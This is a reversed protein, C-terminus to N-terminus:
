PPFALRRVMEEYRPDGRIPDFQPDVKLFPLCQSRVQFAKEILRFADDTQGLHAHIVGIEYPCVSHTKAIETVRDLVQRAEALDGAKAIAGGAMAMVLPSHDVQQATRAAALAEARLGQQAYVIALTAHAMGLGPELEIARRLPVVGEDPQRSIMSTWGANTLIMPSLPDLEMALRSERLGESPRGVAALLWSYWGHGPAYNPNLELAKRFEKEAAAWKWDYITYVFGLSTHAEALSDDLRLAKEAADRAKPMAEMPPLYFDSLNSWADALGAWCRADNPDKALGREFLAIASRLGEEIAMSLHQRGKLYLEHVEPDVPRVAALRAREQPTVAARVERAVAQAVDSQLALVDRLDREYSKAWLHRDTKADILQATIRVRDGSRGVSGELVGDVKLEKAIQSLPKKTGKYSMASTRSIVRLSGIQALNTILEETMGDAFYDQEPDRSLNLLPLVALSQMGAAPGGPRLRERFGGVNAAFLIGLVLVASGIVLALSRRREASRPAPSAGSVSPSSGAESLAFGLDRASQFREGPSKELCRRVIRDLAPPVEARGHSPEPPEEKLIANMTEVASAGRFPRQGALMEYLVAGFSFIDSRHDAPQGRVQEPSMYGVTGMAVGPETGPATPASTEAAGPKEPSALKALGFDLIKVRGDPTVFVNEPKLDRHVIGKEHAAALGQSIQTAYEVAKRAPLAGTALRERLTQGELLESVVYPVGDREGVDHITLINPHNLASAARAEQEFRRLRDPDRSLSGPLIKVAVERGLREDRARYVEGMGGAGLPSLIEYPGLRTGAALAM